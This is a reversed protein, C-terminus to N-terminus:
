FGTVCRFRQYWVDLFRGEANSEYGALERYRSKIVSWSAFALFIEAQSDLGEAVLLQQSITVCHDHCDM